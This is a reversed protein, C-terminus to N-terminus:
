QIFYFPNPLKYTHASYGGDLDSKQDGINAVIKYGHDQILKRMASKFIAAPVAPYVEPKMVLSDWRSYGADSLNAETLAREHEKRGTIFFVAIQHQKAFQYLELTPKIAPADAKHIEKEM